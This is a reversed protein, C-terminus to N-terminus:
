VGTREKYHLQIELEDGQAEDFTSTIDADDFGLDKQLFNLDKLNIWNGYLVFEEKWGKLSEDPSDGRYIHGLRVATRLRTKQNPTM